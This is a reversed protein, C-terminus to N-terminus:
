CISCVEESIFNILYGLLYVSTGLVSLVLLAILYSKVRLAFGIKSKEQERDIGLILKQRERHKEKIDDFIVLERSIVYYTFLTYGIALLFAVMIVFVNGQYESLYQVTLLTVVALTSRILHKWILDHRYKYEDWLLNGEVEKILNTQFSRKKKNM